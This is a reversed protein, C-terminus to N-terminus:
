KGRGYYEKLLEVHEKYTATCHFDGNKDHFYYMCETKRPNLAAIIADLSPNAIPNPPLGSNEYTNYPSEIYKDAPHVQPWWPENPDSGKAYQLTADIQLNMGIFLRNWIVGAIHRMDDFDYAERELLSAITLTDNLPIRDAADGTYRLVVENEFRNLVLPAVDDPKADKAVVYNAPFLKGEVLVPETNEIKLLFEERETDSWNLIDGFNDVVQEKREGSEIVLLRSMPSALNQYWSHLALKAVAKRFWTMRAHRPAANSVIHEELYSSVMPNEVIEKRIPDVGIPFPPPGEVSVQTPLPIDAESYAIEKSKLLLVGASMAVVIIFFVTYTAIRAILLKRRPLRVRTGKPIM